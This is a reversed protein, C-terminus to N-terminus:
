SKHLRFKLKILEKLYEWSTQWINVRSARELNEQWNIPIEKIRYKKFNALLVLESDFFWKNNKVLPLVDAIIKQNAAKFGNAVDKIQCNFLIKILYNYIKSIIIRAWSRKLQSEKLHRSGIVLDAGNNKLITILKTLANIDTSLDADMFVYFDAPFNQWAQKIALGKGKKPLYYYIIKSNQSALKKALNATRDNSANDAIIIQWIDKLNTQCYNIVQSINKELIKEENYVPIVINIQAM